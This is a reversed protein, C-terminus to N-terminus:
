SLLNFKSEDNNCYNKLEDLWAKNKVKFMVPMGPSMFEQGKCVVGEFTMGDLSGEQVSKVFDQNANGYYLLKQTDIYKFTKMFDKPLLYGHNDVSVDFLLVDHKEPQHTGAFSRDGYFEFFCIVKRWRNKKFIEILEEEYKSRILEVAEAWYNNGEESKGGSRTNNVDILQNRTGFKWFGNKKTWEARINSGDLKDFAYIKKGKIIDKTITTYSKM